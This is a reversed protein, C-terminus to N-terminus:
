QIYIKETKRVGDKQLIVIYLGSKFNQNINTNSYAIESHVVKGEVTFVSVTYENLDTEININGYSDFMKTNSFTSQEYITLPEIKLKIYFELNDEMLNQILLKLTDSAVEKEILSYDNVGCQCDFIFDNELDIDDLDIDPHFISVKGNGNSLVLLEDDGNDFNIEADNSVSIIWGDNKNVTYWGDEDESQGFGFGATSTIIMLILFLNKLTKM